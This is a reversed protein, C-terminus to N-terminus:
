KSSKPKNTINYAGPTIFSTNQPIEVKTTQTANVIPLKVNNKKEENKNHEHTPHAEHGKHLNKGHTNAVALAQQEPQVTQESATVAGALGLITQWLTSFGGKQRSRRKGGNRRTRRGPM